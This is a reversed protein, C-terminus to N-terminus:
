QKKRTASFSGSIFAMVLALTRGQAENRTEREPAQYVRAILVVWAVAAVLFVVLALRRM